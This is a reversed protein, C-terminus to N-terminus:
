IKKPEILNRRVQCNKKLTVEVITLKHEFMWHCFDYSILDM